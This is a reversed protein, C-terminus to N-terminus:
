DTSEGPKSLQKMSDSDSIFSYESYASLLRGRQTIILALISLGNERQCRFTMLDSLISQNELNFSLM